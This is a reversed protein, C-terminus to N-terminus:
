KEHEKLSEVTDEMSQIDAEVGLKKMTSGAETTMILRNEEMRRQSTIMSADGPRKGEGIAKAMHDILQNWDIEGNQIQQSLEQLDQLSQLNEETLPIQNELLWRSNALTEENLEFGANEIIASIQDQMDVFDSDSIIDIEVTEGNAAGSYQAMYLNSISPELQNKLLYSMMKDSIGDVSVAQSLADMSDQVNAATAPLDNGDLTRMIQQAVAPNGTIDQLQEETLQDGYISIDVGAKALVAKIKDTVTIITYSDTDNVSFGNEEMAKYDAASTTNALVAIENKRDDATKEKHQDIEQSTTRNTGPKEYTAMDITGRDSVGVTKEFREQQIVTSKSYEAANAQYAAIGKAAADDSLSRTVNDWLNKQEVQM